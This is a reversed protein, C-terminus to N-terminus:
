GQLWIHYLQHLPSLRHHSSTGSRSIDMQMHSIELTFFYTLTTWIKSSNIQPILHGQSIIQTRMQTMQGMGNLRFCTSWIYIESKVFAILTYYTGSLSYPVILHWTVVCKTIYVAKITWEVNKIYNIKKKKQQIHSSFEVRVYNLHIHTHLERRSAQVKARISTFYGDCWIHATTIYNISLLSYSLSYM